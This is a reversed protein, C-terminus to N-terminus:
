PEGHSPPPRPPTPVRMNSGWIARANWRVRVSDVCGHCLLIPNVGKQSPRKSLPSTSVPAAITPISTGSITIRACLFTCAPAYGVPVRTRDSGAEAEPRERCLPGANSAKYLAKSAKPDNPFGTGDMGSRKGHIGPNQANVYSQICPERKTRFFETVGWEIDVPQQFQSVFTNCDNM